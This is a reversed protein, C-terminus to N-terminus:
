TFQTHRGSYELSFTKFIKSDISTSGLCSRHRPNYETTLGITDVDIKLLTQTVGKQASHFLGICGVHFARTEVGALAVEVDM